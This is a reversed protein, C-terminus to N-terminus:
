NVGGLQRQCGLGAGDANNFPINIANGWKQITVSIVNERDYGAAYKSFISIHFDTEIESYPFEGSYESSCANGTVDFEHDYNGDLFVGNCFLNIPRTNKQWLRDTSITYEYGTPNM